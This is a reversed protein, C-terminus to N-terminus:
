YAVLTGRPLPRPHSPERQGEACEVSGIEHTRRSDSYRVYDSDKPLNASEALNPTFHSTGIGTKWAM